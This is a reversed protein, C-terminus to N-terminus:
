AIHALTLIIVELEAAILAQYVFCGDILLDPDCWSLNYLQSCLAGDWPMSESLCKVLCIFHQLRPLLIM